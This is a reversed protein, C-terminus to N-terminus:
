VVVMRKGVKEMREAHGAVVDKLEGVQAIVPADFSEAAVLVQDILTYPLWAASAHRPPEGRTLTDSVKKVLAVAHRVADPLKDFKLSARVLYEHQNEELVQVLWPPPQAGVSMIQEYVAKTYRWDTARGDYRSLADRLFRWGKEAPTGAWSAVADTLLWDADSLMVDVSGRALRLCQTTLRSFTDTMDVRLSRATTLAADFRNSSALRLVISEPPLLFEQNQLIAPERRILDAQANLLAYEYELDSLRIVDVGYNTALKDTKFREEPIYKSTRRKKRPHDVTPCAIFPEEQDSLSLANIAVLYADLQEVVHNAFSVPDVIVAALKRARQYMTLAAEGYNGRSMFWTYLVKSYHPRVRPDVNRAKFSLAEEVDAQFPSLDLSVLKPIAGSECIHYVLGTVLEQKSLKDPAAILAAVAEEYYGLATNGKIITEWLILMEDEDSALSLAQQAFRVEHFVYNSAKFLQSCHVAFAFESTLPGDPLLKALGERESPSSGSDPGLSGAVKMLMDAADDPRHCDLYLRARIYAMAHTLPFYLTVEHAVSTAGLRRLRFCLDIEHSSVDAPSASRLLGTTDIFARVMDLLEVDGAARVSEAVLRHLLAFEPQPRPARYTPGVAPPTPKAPQRALFRLVVLGRFVGFLEEIIPEEWTSLLKQEACFYVYIFIALCLSYRAEISTATFAAILERQWEPLPAPITDDEYDEGKVTGGVLLEVAAALAHSLDGVKLLQGEMWATLGEDQVDDSIIQEVDAQNEVMGSLHFNKDSQLVRLVNNEIAVLSAPSLRSKLQWFVSLISYTQSVGGHEVAERVSIAEDPRVAVGAREREVVLIDDGSRGLCSPWRASREIERCRAIFGEWDRKLAVNYNDYMPLGTQPDRNLTVTCGVVAAINEAVNAYPERLQQPMPGPLSRCDAAYQEIALKLTLSSFVGPSLLAELFTDAVAPRGMLLEDLYAPTLERQSAYTFTRWTTSLNPAEEFNIHMQQVISRGHDDWLAYLKDRAVSFDQLHYGVTKVTCPITGSLVFSTKRMEYVHFCGGSTPSAPSPIFVIVCINDKHEVPKFVRVLTQPEADLLVQHTQSQAVGPVPTVERSPTSAADVKISSVGAHPKWMRLTRDRSLTWIPLIDSTSDWLGDESQWAPMTAISIIKDGEAHSSYVLSSLKARLGSDSSVSETWQEEGIAYMSMSDLRLLSGNDLGVVVCSPDRAHAVGSLKGGGHGIPYENITKLEGWQFEGSHVDQYVTIVIRYLSGITTVALIHLEDVSPYFFTPSPLVPSPFHFRLPVLNHKLTALEILEGGNLVRLVVPGAVRKDNVLSLSAHENPLDNNRKPENNIDAPRVTPVEIAEGELSFLSSFSASVLFHDDM